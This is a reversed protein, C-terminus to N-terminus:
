ASRGAPPVRDFAIVAALVFWIWITAATAFIYLIAMPLGALILLAFLLAFFDRSSVITLFRMLRVKLPGSFRGRYHQKVLDMNFPRRHRAASYGFVALGLVFLGLGWLGLAVAREYQGGLNITVGLIFMLNTAMDVVTDLQAGQRSSRYTARAIEGDVGDFVSAAHFALGGLILGGSTGSLLAAFMIAALLATGLTAHLPRITPIKLLIASIGRSIPRNLWRSVPGDSPKGTGKLIKWTSYHPAPVAERIDGDVIEIRTHPALRNLDDLTASALRAGPVSVRFISPGREAIDKIFRAAAAVGAIRQDAEEASAFRVAVAAGESV